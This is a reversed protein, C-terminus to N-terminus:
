IEIKYERILENIKDKNLKIIFYEADYKNKTSINKIFDQYNISGVIKNNVIFSIYWYDVKQEENMFVSPKLPFVSNVDETIVYIGFVTNDSKKYVQPSAYYIDMSQLKNTYVGLDHCNKIKKLNKKDFSIPNLAGFLYFSEEEKNDMKNKIEILTENSTNIDNTIYKDIDDFTAKIGDRYFYKAKLKNCIKHIYDYFFLIDNDSTPLGMILEVTNNKICIEYGRCIDDKNFVVTYEGVENEILRYKEDMIGYRMNDFILKSVDIKRKLVRKNKIIINVAM